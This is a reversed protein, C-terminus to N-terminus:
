ASSVVLGLAATYLLSSQSRWVPLPVAPNKLQRTLGGSLFRTHSLPPPSSRIPKLVDHIRKSLVQIRNEFIQHLATTEERSTTVSKLLRM